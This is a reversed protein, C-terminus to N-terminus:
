EFSVRKAESKCIGDGDENSTKGRIMKTKKTPVNKDRAEWRATQNKKGLLIPAAKKDLPIIKTKGRKGKLLDGM